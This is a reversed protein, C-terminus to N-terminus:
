LPRASVVPPASPAAVLLWAGWAVGALLAGAVVGCALGWRWGQMYGERVGDRHAAERAAAEIVAMRAWRRRTSESPQETRANPPRPPTDTAPSPVLRLPLAADTAEAADTATDTM